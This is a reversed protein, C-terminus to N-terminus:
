ENRKLINQLSKSRFSRISLLILVADLIFLAVFAANLGQRDPSLQHGLYSKQLALYLFVVYDLVLNFVLMGRFQAFLSHGHLAKIAVEQQRAKFYFFITLFSIYALLLTYILSERLRGLLIGMNEDMEQDLTDPITIYGALEPLGHDALTQDFAGQYDKMGEVDLLISGPNIPLFRDRVTVVLVYDDVTKSDIGTFFTPIPQHDAIKIFHGFVQTEVEEDSLSYVALDTFLHMYDRYQYLAARLTDFYREPVLVYESDAALVLPNGQVDLLGARHVFRSNTYLYLTDLPFGEFYQSYNSLFIAEHEENLARYMRNIYTGGEQGMGILASPAAFGAPTVYNRYEEKLYKLTNRQQVTKSLSTVSLTLSIIILPLVVAKIIFTAGVLVTNAQMHKLLEVPRLRMIYVFVMSSCLLLLVSVLLLGFLYIGFVTLFRINLIGNHLLYFPLTLLIAALLAPTLVARLRTFLIRASSHGHLKEILIERQQNFWFIIATLFLFAAAIITSKQIMQLYLKFSDFFGSGFFSTYEEKVSMQLEPFEGQLMIVYPRLLPSVNPATIYFEGDFSAGDFSALSTLHYDEDKSTIYLHGIKNEIDASTIRQGLSSNFEESTATQLKAVPLRDLYQDDQLYAYVLNQTFNPSTPFQRPRFFVNVSFMDSLRILEDIVAQPDEGVLDPPFVIENVQFDPQEFIFGIERSDIRRSFLFAMEFASYAFIVFIVIFLKSLNVRFFNRM